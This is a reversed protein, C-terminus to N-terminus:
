VLPLMEYITFNKDNQFISYEGPGISIIDVDGSQLAMYAINRMMLPLIM